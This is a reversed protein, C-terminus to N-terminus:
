IKRENLIQKLREYGETHAVFDAGHCVRFFESLKMWKTECVEEKQLKLVDLDIDKKVLFVDAYDRIFYDTGEFKDVYSFLYELEYEKLDIGIEEKTERLAADKSRGGAKVHGGVSLDWCNPSFKKQSSRRQLLVEGNSNIIYVHVVKHLIGRKHAEARDVTSVVEGAENVVDVIENM